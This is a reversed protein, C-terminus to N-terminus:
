RPQRGMGHSMEAQCIKRTDPEVDVLNCRNGTMSDQLRCVDIDVQTRTIKHLSDFLAHRCKASM